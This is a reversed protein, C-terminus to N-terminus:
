IVTITNVYTHMPSVNNGRPSGETPTKGTEVTWYVGWVNFVAFFCSYVMRRIFLMPDQKQWATLMVKTHLVASVM